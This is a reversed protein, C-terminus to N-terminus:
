ESAAHAKTPAIMMRNNGLVWRADVRAATAAVDYDM